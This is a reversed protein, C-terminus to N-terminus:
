KIEIDNKRCYELFVEHIRFFQNDKYGGFHRGDNEFVYVGKAMGKNIRYVKHGGIYKLVGHTDKYERLMRSVEDFFMGMTSASGQFYTSVFPNENDENYYKVDGLMFYPNNGTGIDTVCLLIKNSSSWITEVKFTGHDQNQSVGAICIFGSILLLIIRKM